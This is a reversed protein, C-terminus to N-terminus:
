ASVLDLERDDSAVGVPQTFAYTRGSGGFMHRLVRLVDEGVEFDAAIEDLPWRRAPNIVEITVIQGDADVDVLTGSDYEITQAVTGTGFGIALANADNDYTFTM